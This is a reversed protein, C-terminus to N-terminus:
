VGSVVADLADILLSPDRVLSTVPKALLRAPMAACLHAAPFLAEGDISVTQALRRPASAPKAPLRALPMALRTTFHSLQNSQMDVLFPFAQRQAANPNAYVDFQAM